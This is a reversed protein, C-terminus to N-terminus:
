RVDFNILGYDINSMSRCVEKMESNSKDFLSVCLPLKQPAYKPPVRILSYQYMNMTGIYLIADVYENKLINCIVYSLAKCSRINNEHFDLIYATTIGNEDYLRYTGSLNGKKINQYSHNSLRIDRYKQTNDLHLPKKKEKFNLVLSLISAGLSWISFTFTSLTSLIKSNTKVIKDVRIPLIYYRLDGIHKTKLIKVSYKFSNENPVGMQGVWGLKLGEKSLAKYLDNFIFIDKRYEPLVYTGGSLAMIIRKGNLVYPRPQFYNHGIIERSENFKLAHLTYGTITNSFTKKLDEPTYNIQFCVSYGLCIQHWQEDTVESTKLVIIDEM